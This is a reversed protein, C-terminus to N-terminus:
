KAEEGDIKPCSKASHFDSILKNLHNLDENQLSCLDKTVSINKSKHDDTIIIKNQKSEALELFGRGVSSTGGISIQGTILDKLLLLFLGKEADNESRLELEVRFNGARHIQEDFLAGPMVSQTFRDIKIRSVRIEEGSKIKSEHVVVKSAAVKKKSGKKIDPGFLSDIWDQADKYNARVHNAIRMAHHRLAGALSTGSVIPKGGSTLHVADPSDAEKGASRILIGNPLDFCLDAKIGSIEHNKFVEIETGISKDIEEKFKNFDVENDNKVPVSNKAKSIEHESLIWALCENPNTMDYREYSLNTLRIRGLGRSKKIGFSIQGEALQKFSSYIISLLDKESEFSPVFLDFRMPFKIGAPIVEFDYKHGDAAVGTEHNIKVGDRLEIENIEDSSISEFVILASQKGIAMKKDSGFTKQILKDSIGIKELRSRLAGAISTGPIMPRKTLSDKLIPIDTFSNQGGGICAASELITEAVFRWRSTIPRPKDHNSIM